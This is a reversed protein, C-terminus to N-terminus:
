DDPLGQFSWKLFDTPKTLFSAFQYDKSHPVKFEKVFSMLNTLLVDRFESPFPGSYSMYAATILADGVLMEYQKKLEETRIGWGEKTNALGGILKEARELKMQMTQTEEQYKLMDHKTKTLSENLTIVM